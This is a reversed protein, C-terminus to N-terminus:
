RAKNQERTYDRYQKAYEEVEGYTMQELEWPRLGYFRTFAPLQKRLM